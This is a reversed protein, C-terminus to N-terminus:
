EVIFEYPNTATGDTGDKVIVNGKVSISPRIGGNGNNSIIQGAANGSGKVSSILFNYTPTMTNWTQGTYLYFSTNPYSANGGALVTEDATLLGVPYKLLGNGFKTDSVTFSDRKNSCTITPTGFLRDYAAFYYDKYGEANPNWGSTRFSNNDTGYKFERDNCWVTDDLYNLYSVNQNSFYPIINQEFWSELTKKMTSDNKNELMEEIADEVSNGYKLLIYRKGSYYYALESCTGTANLCTYHHTAISATSTDNTTDVLTYTGNEGADEDFTFSNGYLYATNFNAEYYQYVTGYMYGVDALPGVGSNLVGTSIQTATGTTNTCNGDEDPLGNYILKTGGTSTTRVIKWCFGAFKANNNTVAGRYYYVPYKDKKTSFLLYLGKGNIDSSALKYNLSSGSQVQDAVVKAFVNRQFETRLDAQYYDVTFSLNLSVGDKSLDSLQIDEKFNVHVKYTTSAKSELVDDKRIESDDTYTLSYNIFKSVNEDLEANIVTDVAVDLSGDNKVDVTFEYFDGPKKLSVSYNVTTKNEITPLDAAVSGEKVKINYFYIDWTNGFVSTTGNITLKTSILAFGIGMCVILLLFISKKIIVKKLIGGDWEEVRNLYIM